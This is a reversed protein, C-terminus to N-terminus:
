AQTAGNWTPLTLLHNYAQQTVSDSSSLDITFCLDEVELINVEGMFSGGPAETPYRAYCAIAANGNNRAEQSAYVVVSIRGYTGARWAHDPSNEPRMNDPDPDDVARKWQQVSNVIHYANDCTIGNQMTYSKVLAM